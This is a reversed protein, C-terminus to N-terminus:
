PSDEECYDAPDEILRGDYWDYFEFCGTHEDFVVVKYKAGDTLQQLVPYEREYYRNVSALIKYRVIDGNHEGVFDCLDGCSLAPILNLAYKYLMFFRAHVELHHREEDTLVNLRHIMSLVTDLSQRHEVLELTERRYRVFVNRSTEGMRLADSSPSEEPLVSSRLIVDNLQEDYWDIYNDQVRAFLRPWHNPGGSSQSTNNRKHRLSTTVDIKIYNGGFRLPSFEPDESVKGVFDFSCGADLTPCLGLRSRFSNYFTIEARIGNRHKNLSVSDLVGRKMIREINRALLEEVSKMGLQRFAIYARYRLINEIIKSRWEMRKREQQANQFNTWEENTM